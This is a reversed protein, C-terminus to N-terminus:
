GGAAQPLREDFEAAYQEGVEVVFLGLHHWSYHPGERVARAKLRGYCPAM